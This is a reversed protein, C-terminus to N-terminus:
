NVMEYTCVEASTSTPPPTVERTEESQVVPEDAQGGLLDKEKEEHKHKKKKKEEKSKQLFLLIFEARHWLSTSFCLWPTMMDSCNVARQQRGRAWVAGCIQNAPKLFSSLLWVSHRHTHNETRFSSLGWNLGFVWRGIGTRIRRKRRRKKAAKRRPSKYPPVEHKEM